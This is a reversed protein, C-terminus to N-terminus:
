IAAVELSDGFQGTRSSCVGLISREAVTQCKVLAEAMTVTIRAM